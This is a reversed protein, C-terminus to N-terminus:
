ARHFFPFPNKAALSGSNPFDDEPNQSPYADCRDKTKLSNSCMRSSQHSSCFQLGIASPQRSFFASSGRKSKARRSGASRRSGVEGFM